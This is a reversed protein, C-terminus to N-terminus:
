VVPQGGQGAVAADAEIEVLIKRKEKKNLKQMNIPAGQRRMQVRRGAVEILISGASLALLDLAHERKKSEKRSRDPQINNCRNSLNAIDDNLKASTAAM